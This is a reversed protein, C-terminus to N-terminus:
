VHSFVMCSNSFPLEIINNGHTQNLWHIPGFLSEITEKQKIFSPEQRHFSVRDDEKDLSLLTFAEIAPLDKWDPSIYRYISKDIIKM